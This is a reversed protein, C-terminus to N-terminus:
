KTLFVPGCNKGTPVRAGNAKEAGYACTSGGAGLLSLGRPVDTCRAPKGLATTISTILAYGFTDNTQAWKSKFSKVEMALPYQGTVTTKRAYTTDGAEPHVGDLKVFRFGSASSSEARWDNELSLIGIAFNGATNATTLATKVGGTSSQEAIIFTSTSNALAAPTGANASCPKNLFFANSSAQTGSTSTRRQLYVAKGTGASGALATWDTHYPTTGNNVIAAYQAKTITPANAPDYSADSTNAAAVDVYLGQAVQMARYLVPTVGIGFTQVMAANAETGIAASVTFGWMSLEVDSFGGAPKVPGGDPATVPNVKACGYEVPIVAGDANTWTNGSVTCVVDDLKGVRSLQLPMTSGDPATGTLHPAYANFSGGDVNHYMVSVKSARTCAYANIDKLSGPKNTSSPTALNSFIHESGVDCGASWGDYINFTMASAGSLWTEQLTGATRAVVIDAQTVAAASAITSALALSVALALKTNM